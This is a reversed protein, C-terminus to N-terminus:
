DGTRERRLRRGIEAREESLDPMRMMLFDRLETFDADALKLSRGKALVTGSADVAWEERGVKLFLGANREGFPGPEKARRLIAVIEKRKPYLLSTVDHGYERLDDLRILRYSNGAFPLYRAQFGPYPDGGLLLAAALAAVV